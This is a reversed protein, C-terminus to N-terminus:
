AAEEKKTWAEALMRPSFFMRDLIDEEAVVEHAYVSFSLRRFRSAAIVEVQYGLFWLDNMDEPSFWNALGDMTDTVSLWHKGDDRFIPDPGMPLNKALGQKLRQIHGTEVGDHDYWLGQGGKAAGVRFLLRFGEVREIKKCTTM